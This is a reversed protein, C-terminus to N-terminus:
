DGRSARSWFGFTRADIGSGGGDRLSELFDFFARGEAELGLTRLSTLVRSIRLWNHNPHRWVEGKRAYDASEVVRGGEVSLGLFALFRGFSRGLSDRLAPDSRFEEIDAEDLLPADPNFRSPERLPFMWQIFDHVAEMEDDSFAWLDALMRGQADPALGRYFEILHSM